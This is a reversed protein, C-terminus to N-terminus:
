LINVCGIQPCNLLNTGPYVICQSAQNAFDIEPLGAAGSIRTAFSLQFVQQLYAEERHSILDILDGGYM